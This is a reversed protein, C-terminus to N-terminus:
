GSQKALFRNLARSGERSATISIGDAGKTIEVNNYKSIFDILSTSGQVPAPIDEVAPSFREKLKVLLELAKLQVPNDDVEIFDNSNENAVMKGNEEKIFVQCSQIRKCNLLQNLKEAIRKDTLKHKDLLRQFAERILPKELNEQGSASCKYGAKIASQTANGSQLYYSLFKRQKLTLKEEV